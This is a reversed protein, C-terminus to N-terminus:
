PDLDWAPKELKEIVLEIEYGGHAHQQPSVAYSYGADNDALHRVRYTNPALATEFGALLAAPTYFRKHDANWRSPLSRRKEYLFQHPVICVIFGGVKLVRYWDQIVAVADVAHELMHSSFVSDISGEPFPLTVGDYGPYDLDVGIAHPLIATESGGYGRFGIDLIKEGALYRATFGSELRRIFHAGAEGGVVWNRLVEGQDLAFAGPNRTRYEASSLFVHRLETTSASHQLHHAIVEPNDPERDLFLRYAM